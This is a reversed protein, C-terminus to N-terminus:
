PTNVVRSLRRLLERPQRIVISDTTREIVADQLLRSMERSISERSTGVHEALVAHILPPTIIRQEKDERCPLSLRLLTNYLRSKVDLYSQETMRLYLNRMRFTMISLLSLCVDHRAELIELFVQPPIVIIDADTATMLFGNEWHGNIANLAGVICGPPFDDLVFEKGPAIRLIARITGTINFLVLRDTKTSDYLTTGATVSLISCQASWTEDQEPTINALIPIQRLFGMAQTIDSVSM